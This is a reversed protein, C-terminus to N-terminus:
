LQTAYWLDGNPLRVVNNNKIFQVGEEIALIEMVKQKTCAYIFRESGEIPEGTSKAKWANFKKVRNKM